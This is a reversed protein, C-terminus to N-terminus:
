EGVTRCVSSGSPESMGLSADPLDTDLDLRTTSKAESLDQDIEGKEVLIESQSQESSVSPCPGKFESFDRKLRAQFGRATPLLRGHCYLYLNATSSFAWQM